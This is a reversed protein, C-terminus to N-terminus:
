YRRATANAQDSPGAWKWAYWIIFGLTVVEIMADTEVIKIAPNM